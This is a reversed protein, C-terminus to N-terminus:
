APWPVVYAYMAYYHCASGLIVFVHWVAHFIPVRDDRMLFVTGATYFLGGALMWWLAGPPATEVIPKIAVLPLWGNMVYASLAVNHLRTYFLKAVIGVLSVAWVSTFLAWWWGHRFFTLSMPTFTGAILLFICVQDVTRFFHRLRPQEFTHSLTSAAYVSILTAGYVSVGIVQLADGYRATANVLVATGVVALALGIGHTVRNALEVTQPLPGPLNVATTM